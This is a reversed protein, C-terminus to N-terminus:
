GEKPMVAVEETLSTGSPSRKDTFEKATKWDPLTRRTCFLHWALFVGDEVDNVLFDVVLRFIFRSRHQHLGM